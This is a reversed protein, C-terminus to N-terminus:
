KCVVHPVDHSDQEVISRREIQGDLDMVFLGGRRQGGDLAIADGDADRGGFCIVGLERELERVFEAM